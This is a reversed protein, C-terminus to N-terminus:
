SGRGPLRAAEESRWRYGDHGCGASRDLGCGAAARVHNLEDDLEGAWQGIGSAARPRATTSARIPLRGRYDISVVAAAPSASGPHIRCHPRRLGLGEYTWPIRWTGGDIDFAAVGCQPPRRGAKVGGGRRWGGEAWAITRELTALGSGRREEQERDHRPTSM